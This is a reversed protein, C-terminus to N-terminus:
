SVGVLGKLLDIHSIYLICHVYICTRIDHVHVHAHVVYYVHVPVHIVHIHMGLKKVNTHVHICAQKMM